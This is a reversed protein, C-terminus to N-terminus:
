YLLYEEAQARQEAVVGDDGAEEALPLWGFPQEWGETLEGLRAHADTVELGDPIAFYGFIAERTEGDVELEYERNSRVDVIWGEDRLTEIWRDFAEEGPYVGDFPYSRRPGEDLVTVVDFLHPQGEETEGIPSPEFVVVDGAHQTEDPGAVTVVRASVPGTRIGLVIDRAEFRLKVYSWMEEIPGSDSDFEMGLRAGSERVADWDGVVTAPILRLWHEDEDDDITVLRNRVELAAAFDGLQECAAALLRRTNNADDDVALIREAHERAAQADGEQYAAQARLWDGDTGGIRAAVAEVEDAKGSDLLAFGYSMLAEDDDPREHAFARVADLAEEPRGLAQLASYLLEVLELEEPWRRRAALLREVAREADPQEEDRIEAVLAEASDPLEFRPEPADALASETGAIREAVRDPDRLRAALSRMTELARAATTPAGRELALQAHLEALRVGDWARGREVQAALMRELLGGLTWDNDHVRAAVRAWDLHWKPDRFAIEAPLLAERAEDLRDLAVLAEARTLRDSRGFSDDRETGPKPLAALVEEARGLALLAEYDNIESAGEAATNRARADRAVEIAEEYRGMDSLADIKQGSICAFCPWSPDIRALTEETVALREEAYGPGDAGAYARAVDQVTCVSQPCAVYEERHSFELLDVAKPLVEFGGGLSQMHWHRIFIEAWPLELSRALALAEHVIAEVEDNEDALVAGPLREILDALREQGSDALERQLDRVWNWINM